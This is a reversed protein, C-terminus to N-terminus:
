ASPEAVPERWPEVLAYYRRRYELWNHRRYFRQCAAVMRRRREPDSAVAVIAAALGVPDDPEFFAVMEEDYYHSTAETRSVVMPVRMAIYDLSKMSLAKGAFVGGRTPVVGLDARNIRAPVERFPLPPGVFVRGELGLEEVMENLRRRLPGNGWMILRAQPLRRFVEPMAALLTLVGFLEAYSGHYSLTFYRPDREVPYLEPSFLDPDPVNMIVSVKEPPVGRSVLLRRWTETVIIVHHSFRCSLREVLKLARIWLHDAGVRFKHQYLEPVIDHIDLIVRAGCLRPLLAAFVLFDPPSTVHVVDYGKKLHLLSCLVFSLGFFLLHKLLFAAPFRENYRRAQLKYVRLGEVVEFAADGPERISIIDVEYGAERLAKAERTLLASYKFYSYYICCAHKSSV